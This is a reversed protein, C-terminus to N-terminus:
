RPLDGWMRHSIRWDGAASRRFLMFYNGHNRRPVTKGKDEWSFDLVFSGRVFGLNGSGGVEDVTVTFGTVTTAPGDKPWWFRDIAELGRVPPSGQPILVADSWLAARVAEPDNRRWAAAYAENVARIKAEDAPSLRGTPVAILIMALVTARRM